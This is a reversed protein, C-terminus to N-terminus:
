MRRHNEGVVWECTDGRIETEPLAAEILQVGGSGKTDGSLVMVERRV